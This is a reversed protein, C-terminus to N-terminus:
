NITFASYGLQFALYCFGKKRKLKRYEAYTMISKYYKNDKIAIVEILESDPIM